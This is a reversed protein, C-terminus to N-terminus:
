GFLIWARLLLFLGEFAIRIALFVQKPIRNQNTLGRSFCGPYVLKTADFDWWQHNVQIHQEKVLFPWSLFPPNHTGDNLKDYGPNKSCM